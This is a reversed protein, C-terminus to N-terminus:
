EIEDINAYNCIHEIATGFVKFLSQRNSIRAYQGAQIVNYKLSLAKRM